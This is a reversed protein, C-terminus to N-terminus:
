QMGKNVGYVEGERLKGQMDMLVGNVRLGRMCGVFGDNYDVLAGTFCFM